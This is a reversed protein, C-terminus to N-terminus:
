TSASAPASAGRRGLEIAVLFPIVFDLLAFTIAPGLYNASGDLQTGIIILGLSGFRMGTVLGTTTRVQADRMGVLAGFVVGAVIVVISTVLVWSGFMDVIVDWNVTIGSALAIVLALNAVKVLGAEWEAAHEAYRARAVLGLVLPLLVLLLLNKVIDWTSLSAGSVVRGAWFPVSVINVLQVVVVLSVALPLDAGKAMQAAKLAAASGAGLTALVLGDVYVDDVPFAEALGWALAPMVLANLVVVVVVLGIRRLPAVLQPVTFMLGLSLVTAAISIAIGANFLATLLEDATM